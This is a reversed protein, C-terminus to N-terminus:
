AGGGAMVAVAIKRGRGDPQVTMGIRGLDPDLLIDRYNGSESWRDFFYRVDADTAEVGCGGCSGAIMQLRRWVADAPLSDRLPNLEDLSVETLDGEPVVRRAADVLSLDASVPGLGSDRRAESILRAILESQEQAGIAIAEGDGGRPTGPGAFTQVGYRRGDEDVAVGFGYKSLGEALINERHEPSQMWGKHLEEVGQRDVQVSCNRCLAINEAVLRGKSGGGEVYRDMVTGGEPSAHSYYDRELMDDAHAQAAKDLEAGLELPSRGADRRARNVLELSYDRLAELGDPVRSHAPLALGALLCCAALLPINAHPMTEIRDHRQFLAM